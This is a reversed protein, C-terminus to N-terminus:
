SLLDYRYKQHIFNTYLFNILFAQPFGGVDMSKKPKDRHLLPESCPDQCSLLRNGDYLGDGDTAPVVQCFVMAM